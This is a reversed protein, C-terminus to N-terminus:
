NGSHPLLEDMKQINQDHKRKLVDTLWEHPNVDNVKCNAMLSHM